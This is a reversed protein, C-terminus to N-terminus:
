VKFQYNKSSQKPLNEFWEITKKIGEEFKVKPQWDLEKAAKSADGILCMVESSVPRKRIEEFETSCDINLIKAVAEVMEGITIGKGTALNYTEGTVGNQAAKIFGEVTDSVFNFDRIPKLDGLKITKCSLAQQIVTPIVARASQRPGFTNFPRVITVPTEFACAYSYALMDAAIKSASYPSQAQLPHKESMPTKIATGYVESTSTVIVRRLKRSKAAELINLTGNLNTELYSQPAKYSFPIGILAALHFVTDAENLLENIQFPDRIDGSVIALNDHYIAKEELWGNFSRCNYHVLATVKAGLELLRETLHSGIFGGAGTVVVKKNKFFNNNM